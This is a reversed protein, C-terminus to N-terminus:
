SHVVKVHSELMESPFEKGCKPCPVWAMGGDETRKVAEVVREMEASIEDNEPISSHYKRIDTMVDIHLDMEADRPVERQGFTNVTLHFRRKGAITKRGSMEFAERKVTYGLARLAGELATAQVRKPLTGKM